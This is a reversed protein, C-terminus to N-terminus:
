TRETLARGVPAGSNALAVVYAKLPVSGDRGALTLRGGFVYLPLLYQTEGPPGASTYAIQISDYKVSGKITSGQPPGDKGLDTEIYAEGAQVESWAKQVDRLEFLDTRHITAWRSSVEVVQNGGGISVTISPFSALVNKPESPGFLLIIRDANEPRSVVRADGLDRPSLRARNLWDRATAEAQEDPPVDGAIPSDQSVFQILEPSAFLEGNGSAAFADQGQDEISGTIGIRRALAEVDARTPKGRTMEYIPAQKPVAGFSAALTATLEFGYGQENTSPLDPPPIERAVESHPRNPACTSGIGSTVGTAAPCPTTGAEQQAITVGPAAVLLLAVFVVPVAFQQRITL